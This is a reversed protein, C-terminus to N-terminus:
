KRGKAKTESRRAKGVENWWRLKAERQAPRACDPSCYPQGVREAIFYPEKCVRNRCYALLHAKRIAHLLVFLFADMGTTGSSVMYHGALVLLKSQREIEDAQMWASVIEDKAAWFVYAPKETDDIYHPDGLSSLLIGRNRPGVKAGHTPLLDFFQELFRRVRSGPEMPLNALRELFLEARKPNISLRVSPEPTNATM